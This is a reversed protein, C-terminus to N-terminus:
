AVGRRRKRREVISAATFLILALWIGGFAIAQAQAFPEHYYFVAILFSITPAIYQLFGLVSLNLRQASFNFGLLPLITVVGAFILLALDSVTADAHVYEGQWALYILAAPALLATEWLLGMMPRVGLKKRVLGYFGFTFALWLAVWPPEGVYIALYLTAAAAVFVAFWKLGGMTERLFVVGLVVSVLPNIFYGLSTELIRDNSVAWVFVLWNLAVLGGSLALGPLYRRHRRLAPWLERGDRLWLFVFLFLVAWLIRHAIIVTSPVHSLFKFYVPAVGWFAYTLLAVQFALTHSEAESPSPPNAPAEANQTGAPTDM